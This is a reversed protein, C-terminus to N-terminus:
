NFFINKFYDFDLLLEGILSKPNLQYYDKIDVYEELNEKTIKTEEEFEDHYLFYIFQNIAEFSKRSYDHVQNSQDQVNLQFMGKFLESRLILILKHVKIEKKEEIIIKFDKTENQQYLKSLDKIIGKRGKKTEIWNSEIGIQEFIDKM